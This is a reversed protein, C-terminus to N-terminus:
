PMALAALSITIEGVEITPEMPTTMSCASREPSSAAWGVRRQFPEPFIRHQDRATAALIGLGCSIGVAHSHLHPADKRGKGCRGIEPTLAPAPLEFARRAHYGLLAGEPNGGRLNGFEPEPGGPAIQEPQGLATAAWGVCDSCDVRCADAIEVKKEDPLINRLSYM